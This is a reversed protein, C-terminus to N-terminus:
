ELREVPFSTLARGEYGFATVAWQASSSNFRVHSSGNADGSLNFLDSVFKNIHGLGPVNLKQSSGLQDGRSDYLTATISAATAGTNVLAFAVDLSTASIRMSPIMFSKMDATSAPIGARSYLVGTSRDRLEFVAVVSIDGTSIIKCWGVHGADSSAGTLTLTANPAVSVSSFSGTITAPPTQNTDFSIPFSTGTGGNPQGQYLTGSIVVTAPGPNTIRIVTRYTTLGGDFSGVAVQPVVKIIASIPVRTQEALYYAFIGLVITAIFAAAGTKWVRRDIKLEEGTEL